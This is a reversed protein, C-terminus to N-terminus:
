YFYIFFGFFSSTGCGTFRRSGLRVLLQGRAQPSTCLGCSIPTGGYAGQFSVEVAECAAAWYKGCAPWRGEMLRLKGKLCNPLLNRQKCPAALLELYLSPACYTPLSPQEQPSSRLYATRNPSVPKRTLHAPSKGTARQPVADEAPPTMCSLGTHSSHASPPRSSLTAGRISGAGRFNLDRPLFTHPHTPDQHTM